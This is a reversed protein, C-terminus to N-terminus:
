HTLPITAERDRPNSKDLDHNVLVGLSTLYIQSVFFNLIGGLNDTGTCVSKRGTKVTKESNRCDVSPSVLVVFSNCVSAATMSADPTV